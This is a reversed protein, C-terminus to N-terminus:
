QEDHEGKLDSNMSATMGDHHISILVGIPEGARSFEASGYAGQMPAAPALDAASLRDGRQDPRAERCIDM